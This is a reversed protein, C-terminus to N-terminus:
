RVGVKRVLHNLGSVSREVQHGQARWLHERRDVARPDPSAYEDGDREIRDLIEARWVAAGDPVTFGLRARAGDQEVFQVRLEYGNLFIVVEDGPTRALVLM